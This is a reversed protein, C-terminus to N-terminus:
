KIQQKMWKVLNGYSKKGDKNMKTMMNETHKILDLKYDSDAAIFKKKAETFIDIENLISDILSFIKGGVDEDALPYVNKSTIKSLNYISVNCRHWLEHLESLTEIKIELRVPTFYDTTKIRKIKM